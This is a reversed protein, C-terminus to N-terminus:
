RQEELELGEQRWGARRKRAFLEHFPGPALEEVIRYFEDPKASHRGVPAEFVSRVAHSRILSSGRGRSAIICVEHELRVFRGMGMHRKGTKTKKVWVLESKPEFGWARVVRLAEGPMASVRWLFLLADDHLPPLPFYEIERVTMTAYHKGAGRKPGPLQDGFRWAPDAVLVRAAAPSKM